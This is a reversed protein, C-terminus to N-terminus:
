GDRAERLARVIAGALETALLNDDALVLRGLAEGCLKKISERIPGEARVQEFVLERAVQQIANNFADQLPSSEKAYFGHGDRRTTLLTAIAGKILEARKQEDLSKYMAEIVLAKMATDDSM